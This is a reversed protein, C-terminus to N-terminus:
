NAASAECTRLGNRVAATARVDDENYDLLRIRLAERTAPAGGRASHIWAQAQLGGPDDDRWHFGFEPAVQKIGLGAVGIFHERIIPLLDVFLPLVDAPEDSGLVRVLHSTEPHSYHFVAVTVGREAAAAIHERLWTLFRMGLAHEAAADLADIETFDVYAGEPNEDDTVLAGWLFVRNDTDWEVDFDIEVDASPVSIPGTTIRELRVGALAMGARRVAIALRERARPQHTVRQLYATWWSEDTVDIAALDMATHVGAAVLPAWERVDLRGTELIASAADPGLLDRCYDHWPCVDCEDTVVPVVLAPPDDPAGVRELAREAVKLRFGHEHDYREIASRRRTGQSRSFTTFLPEELDLWTLAHAGEGPAPPEDTGIIFGMVPGEVPAYGCAQLMRAYHALQVYDDFRDSTRPARGAQSTVLTPHELTSQLWTGRASPKTALHAKVDGAVYAPMDDAIGVRLLVDPSGTRGGAVDDPLRGGVIVEVGDAMAQLTRRAVDSGFAGEDFVLCRAGLAARMEERVAAEFQRGADFRAQLEAPVPVLDAIVTRDWENHIRRACRKAAYGGLLVESRENATM